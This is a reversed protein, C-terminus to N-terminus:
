DLRAVEFSGDPQLIMVWSSRYVYITEERLSTMALPKMPPDGDYRLTTGDLEFGDFRNWGSVYNENFQEWAPRPDDDSLFLPLYGVISRDPDFPILHGDMDLFTIM